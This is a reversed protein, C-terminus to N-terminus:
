PTWYPETAPLFSVPVETVFSKIWDACYRMGAQVSANEGLLILGKKAGTAIMDQAYEVAEWEHAYGCIVVDVPRNLLAIGPMLATNGFSSAVTTVVLKPDGVVRLTKDDLKTSLEQALALLATPPRHLLNANAADAQWGLAHAMSTAIGDPMRDQWHDHLSFVIMDHSRILDRKEVFLADGELHDLDDSASWFAPDYTFVLVGKEHFTLRSDLNPHYRFCPFHANRALIPLLQLPAATRGPRYLAIQLPRPNHQQRRSATARARDGFLNPNLRPVHAKPAM